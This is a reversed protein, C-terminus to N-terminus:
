IIQSKHQFSRADRTCTTSPSNSSFFRSTQELQAGLFHPRTVRMSPGRTSVVRRWGNKIIQGRERLVEKIENCPPTKPRRQFSIRTIRFIFFSPLNISVLILDECLVLFFLHILFFIPYKRYNINRPVLRTHPRVSATSNSSSTRNSVFSRFFLTQRDSQWRGLKLFTGADMFLERQSGKQVTDDKHECGVVAAEWHKAHPRHHDYAARARTLCVANGLQLNTSKDISLNSSTINCSSKGERDVSEAEIRFLTRALLIIRV